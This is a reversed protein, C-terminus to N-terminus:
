GKFDVVAKTVQSEVRTHAIPNTPRYLSHEQKPNDFQL